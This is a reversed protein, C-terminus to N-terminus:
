TEHAYPRRRDVSVDCGACLRQAAPTFLAIRENHYQHGYHAIVNNHVLCGEYFTQFTELDTGFYIEVLM